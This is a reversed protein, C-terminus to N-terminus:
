PKDEKKEMEEDSSDEEASGPIAYKGDLWKGLDILRCRESCFPLNPSAAITEYAFRKGCIPCTHTPM